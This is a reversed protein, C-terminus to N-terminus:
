IEEHSLPLAAVGRPLGLAAGQEIGHEAGTRHDIALERFGHPREISSRLEAGSILADLAPRVLLELASARVHQRESPALRGAAHRLELDVLPPAPRLAPAPAALSAKVDRLMRLVRRDGAALAWAMFKWGLEAHRLEDEAIRELARQVEVDTARELQARATLAAVTEEVCSDLLTRLAIEALDTSIQIGSVDLPGPASRRAGYRAALAFCARAHEVEDRVARQCESVLELPAGIAMLSLGFLSFSAISAHELLADQLWEGAIALAAADTTAEPSTAPRSLQAVRQTQGNVVLPRGCGPPGDVLVYCCLGGERLVAGDEDWRCGFNGALLGSWKQSVCGQADLFDPQAQWTPEIALQALQSPHYCVENERPPLLESRAPPASNTPPSSMGRPPATNSRGALGASSTEERGGDASEAQGGCALGFGAAIAALLRLRPADAAHRSGERLTACRDGM